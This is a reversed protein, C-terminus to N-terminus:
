FDADRWVKTRPKKAKPKAPAAPSEPATKAKPPAPVPAPETAPGSAPAPAPAPVVAPAPVAAEPAPAPAPAAVPEAPLEILHVEYDGNNGAPHMVRWPKRGAAQVEILRSHGDDDIEFSHGSAPKGNVLVTAGEPVGRLEITFRKAASPAEAPTVSSTAAAPAPEAPESSRSALTAIVVVTATAGALMWLVRAHDRKGPIVPAAESLPRAMSKGQSREAAALLAKQMESASQYRQDPDRALAKAVVDAIPEPVSPEIETVRPADTTAIQIILEGAYQHKFPQEGSLLEFLVVGVSWVDSRADLDPRGRAQEPSMYEPTGVVVGEKTTPVSRRSGRPDTRKAIGFDRIKPFTGAPDHALYINEPKLDRHIIGGEHIAQLGRLTMGIVQVIEQLPMPPDAGIKQALEVGTLLEMVMYAQGDDTQGFDMTQIVNRHKVACAIRAERLFQKRLQDLKREDACYLFKIAVERELTRDLAKWVSASGGDGLHALLKYRGRVVDGENPM